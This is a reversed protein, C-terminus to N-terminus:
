KRMPAREGEGRGEGALLPLITTRSGAFARRPIPRVRQPFTQRGGPQEKERLSFTLILPFPAETRRNSGM